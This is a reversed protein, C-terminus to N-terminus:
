PTDIKDVQLVCSKSEKVVSGTMLLRNDTTVQKGSNTNIRVDNYTYSVPLEDIRNPEHSGTGPIAVTIFAGTGSSKEVLLLNYRNADMQSALEQESSQRLRLYGEVSVRGNEKQRCVENIAVTAPTNGCSCCVAMMAIGLYIKVTLSMMLNSQRTQFNDYFLSEESVLMTFLSPTTLGLSFM